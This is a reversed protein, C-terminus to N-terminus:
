DTEPPRRPSQPGEDGEREGFDIVERPQAGSQPPGIIGKEELADMLRAARTYGIRFNRQLRTTSAKRWQRVARIAEELLEDEGSASAPEEWLPAQALPPGSSSGEWAAPEPGQPSPGPVGRPEAQAQAARRALGAQHWFQVVRLLEIESVYAGQLRVPAAADPAQFLMDGRGLLREAGPQDLIVRSDVSSAVAFSIRASFNAKILGTLVDVSPRQTAIMLHIGTARSLQALRTIIRETEDPAMLMLDALEDIVVVWAPVKKANSAEAKRNFDDLNRAGAQAFRHYREDMERTIWQLAGVVRDLDVVVPALLHPIGNYHTLEVRKPDVMLLRLDDPTNHLLFCTVISNVCVSKGSGTTGAILLHPMAALDAVVAHGSVDQGLAFRLPAKMRQFAESEVVDRLGVLSIETNPVEIGVFGKGPVPAQIRISAAALALALDDALASIKSVKVRTRKGGRAEVFDPEVGFQTITPGRNVEVVRAPAGFSALTEEINRSRQRDFEDSLVAEMGPNLLQGAEPLTWPPLEPGREDRPPTEPEGGGLEPSIKPVAEAGPTGSLLIGLATQGAAVEGPPSGAAPRPAPGTVELGPRTAATPAKRARRVVRIGAEGLHYAGWVLAPLPIRLTLLLGALFVALMVLLTGLWDVSGLLVQLLAAGVLGGGHGQQAVALSEAWSGPHAFFQLSLCLDLYLLAVGAVRDATLPGLSRRFQRLIFWAGLAMFALPLLFGPWGFGQLLLFSVSHTFSNAGALFLGVLSFAGLVCLVFGLM